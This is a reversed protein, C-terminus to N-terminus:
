WIPRLVVHEEPVEHEIARELTTRLRRMEEEGVVREWEREIRTQAEGAARVLDRGRATLALLQARGDRDHARREVYGLQELAAVLKAAGQKTMGLQAGLVSTTM